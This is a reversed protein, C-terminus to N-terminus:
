VIKRIEPLVKKFAEKLPPKFKCGAANKHGGGGFKAAVASVDIRGKSRFTVSLRGGEERFLIAAKVGPIMMGYNIANESHEVMANLETFDRQTLTMVAAKGSFMMTMSELARGLIKLSEFSRTSYLFDNIRAFKFGTQLLRSATEHTQPNTAPYHFRGTDTVIGVYLYSAEIKTINVKQSYFFRYIIEATSSSATDIINIDGYFDATKHHDINVILSTIKDLGNLIGARKLNSCELLIMADFRSRPPKSVHISKIHPLFALNEPVPDGSFMYVKKGMRKLVSAIALMSGITDGDPGIHGALFFKKNTQIAEIFKKLEEELVPPKKM